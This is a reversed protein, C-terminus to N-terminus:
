KRCSRHLPASCNTQNRPINRRLRCRGRPCNRMATRSRRIRSRRIHQLLATNPHHIGSERHGLWTCHSNCRCRTHGVRKEIPKPTHVRQPRTCSSHHPLSRHLRNMDLRVFRHRRHVRVTNCCRSRRKHLASPRGPATCRPFGAGSTFASLEATHKVAEAGCGATGWDSGGAACVMLTRGSRVTPARKAEGIKGSACACVNAVLGIRARCSTGTNRKPLILM